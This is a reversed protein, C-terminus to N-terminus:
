QDLTLIGRLNLHKCGIPAIGKLVEDPYEGPVQDVALQLRHTNWAMVINALLTLAGSIAGLEEAAFEDEGLTFFQEIEMASLVDPFREQGLYRHESRSM